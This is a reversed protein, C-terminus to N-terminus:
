DTPIHLSMENDMDILVDSIYILVTFIVRVNSSINISLMTNKKIILNKERQSIKM